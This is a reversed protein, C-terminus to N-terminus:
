RLHGVGSEKGSNSRSMGCNREKPTLLDTKDELVIDGRSSKRPHGNGEDEDFIDIDHEGRIGDGRITLPIAVSSSLHSNLMGGFSSGGAFSLHVGDLASFSISHLSTLPPASASLSVTTKCPMIMPSHGSITSGSNLIRNPATSDAAVFPPKRSGGVRFERKAGRLGLRTGKDAGLGSSSTPAAALQRAKKNKKDMALSQGPLTHPLICKNGFKCNGMIFYKCTGTQTPKRTSHSFPCSSGATCSGVKYLKCPVHDLRRKTPRKKISEVSVLLAKKQPSIPPSCGPCTFCQDTFKLGAM